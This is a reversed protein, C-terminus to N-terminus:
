ASPPSRLSCLAPRSPYRFQFTQTSECAAAIGGLSSRNTMNFSTWQLGCSAWPTSTMSYFMLAAALRIIAAAKGTSLWIHTLPGRVQHDGGLPALTPVSPQQLLVPHRGTCTG